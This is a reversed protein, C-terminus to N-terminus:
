GKICEIWERTELNQPKLGLEKIEELSDYPINRILNFRARLLDTKIMSYSLEVLQRQKPSLESKLLLKYADKVTQNNSTKDIKLVTYPNINLNIEDFINNFEKM